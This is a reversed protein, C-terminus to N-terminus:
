ERWDYSQRPADQSAEIITISFNGTIVSLVRYKSNVATFVDSLCSIDSALVRRTLLFQLSFLLCAQRERDPLACYTPRRTCLPDHRISALVAFLAFVYLLPSESTTVWRVVLGGTRHKLVASRVPLETKM